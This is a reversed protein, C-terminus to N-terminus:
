VKTRVPICEFCDRCRRSLEASRAVSKIMCQGVDWRIHKAASEETAWIVVKWLSQISIRNCVVDFWVEPSRAKCTLMKSHCPSVDVGMNGYAGSGGGRMTRCADCWVNITLLHQPWYHVQNSPANPMCCRYAGGGFDTGRNWGSAANGSNGPNDDIKILPWSTSFLTQAARIDAFQLACLFHRM